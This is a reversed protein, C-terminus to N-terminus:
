IWSQIIILHTVHNLIKGGNWILCNALNLIILDERKKVVELAILGFTARQGILSWTKINRENIIM